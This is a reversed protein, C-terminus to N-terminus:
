SEALIEDLRDFQSNWGEGSSDAIEATTELIQRCVVETKGGAAESFTITTVATIEVEGSVESDFVLREPEDVERFSGVVAHEDGTSDEIMTWNFAGGPKPELVIADLPTTFGKPGWWRTMQEPETFARWVVQRPADLVRKVEVEREAVADPPSSESM